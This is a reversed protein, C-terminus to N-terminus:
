EMRVHFTYPLGELTFDQRTEGILELEIPYLGSVSHTTPLWVRGLAVLILLGEDGGIATFEDHNYGFVELQLRERLTQRMLPMNPSALGIESICQVSEMSFVNPVTHPVFRRRGIFEVINGGVDYFYIARADWSSESFDLYSQGQYPLLDVREMAWAIAEEFQEAPINFAFHHIHAGDYSKRFTLMSDGTQLTFSEADTTILPFGLVQHYFVQQHVLATTYLTVHKIRM